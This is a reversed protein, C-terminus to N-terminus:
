CQLMPYNLLIYFSKMFEHLAITYPNNNKSIGYSHRVKCLNSFKLLVFQTDRDTMIDLLSPGDIILARPFVAPDNALEEWFGTPM